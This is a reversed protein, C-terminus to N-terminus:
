MNEKKVQQRAFACVRGSTSAIESEKIDDCPTLVSYRKNYRSMRENTPENTQKSLHSCNSKNRTSCARMKVENALPGVFFANWVM